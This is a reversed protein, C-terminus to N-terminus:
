IQNYNYYIILSFAFKLNLIFKIKNININNNNINLILPKYKINGNIIHIIFIKNDVSLKTKDGLEKNKFITLIM